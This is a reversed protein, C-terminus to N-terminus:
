GPVPKKLFAGLARQCDNPGNARQARFGADRAGDVNLQNDDFFLIRHRPIALDHAVHDFIAADPKVAGIEFSLFFRDLHRDLGWGCMQRWHLDNTNSLCGLLTRGKLERLLDIAGPLVGTIAGQFAEAFEAPALDLEFEHVVERVFTGTDCAGREYARVAESSLWRDWITESSDGTWRALTEVGQFDVLVGGLDFLVCDVDGPSIEEPAM